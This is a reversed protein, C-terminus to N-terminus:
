DDEIELPIFLNKYYTHPAGPKHDIFLSDRFHPLHETFLEKIKKKDLNIRRGITSLEDRDTPRYIVFCNSNQRIVSPIKFFNQNAFICNLNFHTSGFRVIQSLKKLDDKTIKSFDVDDFILLKKPEIEFDNYSPIGEFIGTPDLINWEKTEGAAGHIVYIEDFHEKKNKSGQVEAIINKITNSKGTNPRGTVTMVFPAPINAPSRGKYYSEHFTKDDNKFNFIKKKM